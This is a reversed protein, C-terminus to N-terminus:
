IVALMIGFIIIGACLIKFLINKEKYIVKGAIITVIASSQKLLTMITVKSEPDANAIFLMRDGLVLLFSIAYIYPNTICGKVDVKEKKIIIYVLYMMSLMFMFWFQLQASTIVYDSMIFKDITGSLANLACSFITIWIYKANYEEDKGERKLNVLYLGLMVLVLSISGKFTLREGLFVVGMLTSFLVRSMDIVGYLSVPLAKVSTFTWIWAIFIILSKIFIIIYCDLSLSFVDKVSFVSMIFGLFTYMFLTELVGNRKLAAKKIPERLGKFIGYLIIFVIWLKLFVVEKGFPIIGWDASYTM